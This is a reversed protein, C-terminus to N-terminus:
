FRRDKKEFGAKQILLFVYSFFDIIMSCAYFHKTMIPWLLQFLIMLTELGFPEVGKRNWWSIISSFKEKSKQGRFRKAKIRKTQKHVRSFTLQKLCIMLLINYMRSFTQSKQSFHRLTLNFWFHLFQKYIKWLFYDRKSMVPTTM